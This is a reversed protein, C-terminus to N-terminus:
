EDPLSVAHPQRAVAALRKCQRFLPAKVQQEQVNVHRLQVAELDNLATRSRSSVAPPCRGIMANVTRERFSSRSRQRAAPMSSKWVLGIRGASRNAAM